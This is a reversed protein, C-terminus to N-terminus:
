LASRVKSRRRTGDREETSAARDPESAYGYYAEGRRAIKNIVVGLVRGNVKTINDLARHATEFTTRGSTVVLLAGDPAPPNV